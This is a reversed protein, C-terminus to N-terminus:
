IIKREFVRQVHVCVSEFKLKLRELEIVMKEKRRGRIEM